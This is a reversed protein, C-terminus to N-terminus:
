EDEGDPEEAQAGTNDPHFEAILKGEHDWIYLIGDDGGAAVIKGDTTADTCYMYSDPGPLERFDKGNHKVIGVKPDGASVVLENKYALYQISTVHKKFISFNEVREGDKTNWVNIVKDAGSSALLQSGRHWTVDLVHHTHGEFTNALEGNSAHFVNVLKDAAGSALYRGDPSFQLSFITDSHSEPLQKVPEGDPVRWLSITGSRSPVGSGAALTEGEPTFALALVRGVLAPSNGDTNESPTIVHDLEWNPDLQWATTTYKTTAATLDGEHTYALATVAGSAVPYTEFANGSEADFTAVFPAVGGMALIRIDRSFAVTHLPSRRDKSTKRADKLTREGHELEVRTRTLNDNADLTAKVMDRVDVTANRYAQESKEKARDATRVADKNEKTAKKTADLRDEAQKVKAQFGEQHRATDEKVHEITKLIESINEAIKQVVEVREDVDKMQKQAQETATQKVKLDRAIQDAEAVANAQNLSAELESAAQSKLKYAEEAQNSRAQLTNALEDLQRVLEASRKLAEEAREVDKQGQELRKDAKQKIEEAESQDKETNELKLQAEELEKRKETRQKALDVLKSASTKQHEESTKLTESWKNKQQKTFETFRELENVREIAYRDGQLEAIRSGDVANWLAVIHNSGASAIRQADPRVSVATVAAGHELQHLQEGSSINWIRVTGDKSGSVIKEGSPWITDLCTVPDGHGGLSRVPLLTVEQSQDLKWISIEGGAGGSAVGTYTGFDAEGGIWTVAYLDEDVQTAAIQNADELRWIRISKDEGAAASALQTSDPSFCISRVQSTHGILSKIQDPATSDRLVISHKPGATAIWKGNPSIDLPVLPTDEKTSEEADHSEEAQLLEKHWKRVERPRRWLKITRYGGSALVRGNPSFALSHVMDNHAAHNNREDNETGPDILQQVLRKSPIHYISIQNARGCAVYQGDSSIALSLIAGLHNPVTQWDIHTTTHDPAPTKTPGKAGQDIWVKLTGLEQPSLPPANVRNDDPPMLPEERGAALLFLLSESGNGPIIVPGYESGKAITEPTELILNAKSRTTNHCALCSKQFIPLIQSQFDILVGDPPLVIATDNATEDTAALPTALICLLFGTTILTAQRLHLHIFHTM